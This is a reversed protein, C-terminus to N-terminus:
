GIAQNGNYKVTNWWMESWRTMGRGMGDKHQSVRGQGGKALHDGNLAGLHLHAEGDRGLLGLPQPLFHNVVDGYFSFCKFRVKVQHTDKCKHTDEIFHLSPVKSTLKFVHTFWIWQGCTPRMSGPWKRVMSSAMIPGVLPRADISTSLRLSIVSVPSEARVYGVLHRLTGYWRWVLCWSTGTCSKPYCSTTQAADLM